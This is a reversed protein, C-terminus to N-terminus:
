FFLKFKSPLYCTNKASRDEWEICGSVPWVQAFVLFDFEHSRNDVVDNETSGQSTHIIALILILIYSNMIRCNIPSDENRGSFYSFFETNLCFM